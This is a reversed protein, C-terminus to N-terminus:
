QSTPSKQKVDKSAPPEGALDLVKQRIQEKLGSTEQEIQTMTEGALRMGPKTAPPFQEWLWSLVAIGAWTALGLIGLVVAGLILWARARVKRLTSVAQASFRHQRFPGRM